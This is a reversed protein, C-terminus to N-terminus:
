SAMSAMMAECKAVMEDCAKACYRCTEHMDAHEMCAASCAKGMAMCAEMMHKMADMDMGAPRMMMRMCCMAMDAMNMCMAGCDMGMDNGACMTAAMSCANMAEMCEQMAGMDMPMDGMSMSKMMEMTDMTNERSTTLQQEHFESRVAMSRGTVGRTSRMKAPTPRSGYPGSTM